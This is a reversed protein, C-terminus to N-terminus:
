LKDIYKNHFDDFNLKRLEIFFEQLKNKTFEDTQDEWYPSKVFAFKIPNTM